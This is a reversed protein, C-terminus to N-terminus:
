FTLGVGILLPTKQEKFQQHRQPTISYCILNRSQHNTPKFGELPVIMRKYSLQISCREVSALTPPELGELRVFDSLDTIISFITSKLSLIFIDNFFVITPNKSINFYKELILHLRTAYTNQSCRSANLDCM